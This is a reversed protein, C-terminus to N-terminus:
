GHGVAVYSCPFGSSSSTAWFGNIDTSLLSVTQFQNTTPGGCVVVGIVSTFAPSFNVRTGPQGSACAFVGGRFTPLGAIAAARSAITDYPALAANRAAVTDYPALAANRAAITDYATLISTIQAQTYYNAVVQASTYYAGLASNRAAITDYPVLTSALASSTVYNALISNVQTQTYYNALLANTQAQTYYNAITTALQAQTVYNALAANLQATTVFGGLAGTLAYGTLGGWAAPSTSPTNGSNNSLLSQVVVNNDGRVIDGAQYTETADYDVIGRRSFYRIGNWVYNLAFNFYQRSPPQASLQWGKSVFGATVTDPDKIDTNIVGADAWAPRVAPKTIAM